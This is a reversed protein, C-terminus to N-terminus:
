TKSPTNSPTPTATPTRTGSSSPTNSPTPSNSPTISPTMTRTYTMSPSITGSRTTTPTYSPTVPPTATISPSPTMSSTPSPIVLNQTLNQFTQVQGVTTMTASWVPQGDWNLLSVSYAATPMSFRNCFIILATPELVLHGIDITVSHAVGAEAALSVQSSTTASADFNLLGDVLQSGAGVAPTASTTVTRQYAVNRYEGDLLWVERLTLAAGSPAAIRVYRPRLFRNGSDTQAASGADPLVPATFAALTFQQGLDATLDAGLVTSGNQAIVSLRGGGALIRANLNSDAPLHLL